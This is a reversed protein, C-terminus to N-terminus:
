LYLEGDELNLWYLLLFFLIGIAILKCLNNMYQMINILNETFRQQAEMTM